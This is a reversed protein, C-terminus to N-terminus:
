VARRLPKHRHIKRAPSPIRHCARCRRCSFGPAHEQHTPAPCTQRDNRQRHRCPLLRSSPPRLIDSPEGVRITAKQPPSNGERLISVLAMNKANPKQTLLERSQDNRDMVFVQEHGGITIIGTMAYREALPSSEEATPLSFPSRKLLFQFDSLQRPKEWAPPSAAIMSIGGLTGVCGAALASIYRTQVFHQSLKM